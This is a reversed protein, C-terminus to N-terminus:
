LLSLSYKCVLLTDSSKPPFFKNKEELKIDLAGKSTGSGVTAHNKYITCSHFERMDLIIGYNLASGVLGTGSGRVTVSVKMKKAIKVTNIVDTENKPIIVIKPTIQYSSADVSYFDRYEKQTIVRGQISSQLLTVISQKM